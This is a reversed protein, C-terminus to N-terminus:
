KVVSLGVIQNDLSDLLFRFLWVLLFHFLCFLLPPLSPHMYGQHLHNAWFMQDGVYSVQQPFEM